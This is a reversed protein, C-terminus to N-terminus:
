SAMEKILTIEPAGVLAPLLHANSVTLMSGEGSLTYTLPQPTGRLADFIAVEQPDTPVPDIGTITVTIESADVEITGSVSKPPSSVPGVTSVITMTLTGMNATEGAAVTATVAHQVAAPPASPNVGPVMADVTATWTGALATVYNMAPQEDPPDAPDAPKAGPGDGCGALIVMTAVAAVGMLWVIRQTM